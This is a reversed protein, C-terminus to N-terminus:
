EGLLRAACTVSYARGQAKRTLGGPSNPSSFRGRYVEPFPCLAALARADLYGGADVLARVLDELLVSHEDLVLRAQEIFHRNVRPTPLLGLEALAEAILLSDAGPGDRRAHGSMVAGPNGAYDREALWGCHAITIRQEPSLGDWGAVATRGGEGSAQVSLVPKAFHWLGVTHGMEHHEYEKV